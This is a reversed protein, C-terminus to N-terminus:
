QSDTVGAWFRVSDIYFVPTGFAANNRIVIAHIEEGALGFAAIPIRVRQWRGTVLEGGRLYQSHTFQVWLPRPFGEEDRLGVSLRFPRYSATAADEGWSLLAEAYVYFELWSYGSLDVDGSNVFALEGRPGLSTRISREAISIWGYAIDAQSGEGSLEHEWGRALEERYVNQGLNVDLTPPDPALPRPPAGYHARIVDEAPKANPCADINSPGSLTNLAEWGNWFFGLFWPKGSFADLAAQYLDAQEQLDVQGIHDANWPETSIGDISPYGLSTVIVPRDWQESLEGLREVVPEWSAQLEEVSPDSTHALEIQNPRIGIADVADWWPISLWADEDGSSYTIPGAYVQRAAEAVTRWDAERYSTCELGHGISFLDVGLTQAMEAYRVVFASYSAYWAQWDSEDFVFGIDALTHVPDDSFAFSVELMVKMGLSHAADTVHQLDAQSPASREPLCTIATAQFSEQYCDTPVELRIWNVGM